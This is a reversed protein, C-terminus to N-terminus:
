LRIWQSGAGQALRDKADLLRVVESVAAAPSLHVAAIPLPALLPLERDDLARFSRLLFDCFGFM